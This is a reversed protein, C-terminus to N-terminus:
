VGFRLQHSFVASAAHRVPLQRHPVADRLRDHLTGHIASSLRRAIELAALHLSPVKRRRWVVGDTNASAPNEKQAAALSEAVGQLIVAMQAEHYDTTDLKAILGDLMAQVSDEGLLEALRARVGIPCSRKGNRMAILNSPDTNLARALARLGGAIETAKAIADNLSTLTTVIVEAEYSPTTVLVVNDIRVVM